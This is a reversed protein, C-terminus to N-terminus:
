INILEKAIAKKTLNLTKRGINYCVTSKYLGSMLKSDNIVSGFALLAIKGEEFKFLFNMIKIKTYLFFM